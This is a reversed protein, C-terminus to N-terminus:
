SIFNCIEQIHKERQGSIDVKLKKYPFLDFLSDTITQVEGIFSNMLAIHDKNKGNAFPSNVIPKVKQEVWSQGRSLMTSQFSSTADNQYLYILYPNLDKSLDFLKLVLPTIDEKRNMWLLYNVQQQITMAEQILYGNRFSNQSLFDMWQKSIQQIFFSPQVDQSTGAELRFPNVEDPELIVKVSEGNSILHRGLNTATTSKGSGPLGEIFVTKLM